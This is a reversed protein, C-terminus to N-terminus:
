GSFSFENQPLKSFFSVLSVKVSRNKPALKFFFSFLNELFLVGPISGLGNTEWDLMSNVWGWSSVDFQRRLSYEMGM